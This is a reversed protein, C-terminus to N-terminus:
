NHNNCLYNVYNLNINNHKNENIFESLNKNEFKHSNKPCNCNIKFELNKTDISEIKIYDNCHFLNLYCTENLSNGDLFDEIKKNLNKFNSLISERHCKEEIKFIDKVSYSNLISKRIQYNNVKNTLEYTNIM